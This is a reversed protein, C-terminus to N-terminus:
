VRAKEVPDHLKMAIATCDVDSVHGICRGVRSKDLSQIMTLDVFPLRQVGDSCNAKTPNFEDFPIYVCGEPIEDIPTTSLQVTPAVLVRNSDKFKALVVGPRVVGTGPVKDFKTIRIEFM